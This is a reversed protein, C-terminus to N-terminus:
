NNLVKLLEPSRTFDFKRAFLCNSGMLMPVDKITYVYLNVRTWDIAQCVDFVLINRVAIQRM